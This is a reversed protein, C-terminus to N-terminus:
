IEEFFENHKEPYAEFFRQLMEFNEKNEKTRERRRITSYENLKQKNNEYYKRKSARAGATQNYKQKARRNSEKTRIVTEAKLRALEEPSTNKPYRAM